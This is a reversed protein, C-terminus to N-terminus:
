TRRPLSTVLAIHDEFDAFVRALGEPIHLRAVWRIDCPGYSLFAWVALDCTKCVKEGVPRRAEIYHICWIFGWHCRFDQSHVASHQCCLQLKKRCAFLEKTLQQQFEMWVPATFCLRCLRKLVDIFRFRPEESIALSARSAAKVSAQASLKSFGKSQSLICQLHV